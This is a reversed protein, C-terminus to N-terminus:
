RRGPPAPQRRLAPIRSVTDQAESSAVLRAQVALPWAAGGALLRVFERCMGSWGKLCALQVPVRPTFHQSSTELILPRARRLPV